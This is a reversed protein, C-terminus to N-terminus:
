LEDHSIQKTETQCHTRLRTIFGFSAISFVQVFELDDDPVSLPVGHMSVALTRLNALCSSRKEAWDRHAAANRLTNFAYLANWFADPSQIWDLARVLRIKTFFKENSLKLFEPHSVFDEIFSDIADEILGHSILVSMRVSDSLAENLYSVLMAREEVSFFDPPNPPSADAM